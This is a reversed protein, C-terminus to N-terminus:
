GGLSEVFQIRKAMPPHSYFMFEVAPHPAPDALNMSSLKRLASAFAPANHTMQIAYSDAEREHRRSLSHTIPSTVLGFLSLFVALLPLGAFDALAAIGLSELSWAHLYATVFLGAFTTLVGAVIATRIHHLRYHGVEHAFVTEIEAESFNRILTDGLLIRKAKGIGTFLANAKRTNKSLNFSFVGEVRVGAQAAVSRIREKLEGDNLPSSEYFLPFILIPALRAAVVHLAALVVGVPLWWQIGFAKICYYLVFLVIIAIPTGVAVSKM